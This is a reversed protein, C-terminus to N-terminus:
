SERVKASSGRVVLMPDLVAERPEVGDGELREVVFRVAHEALMAPDQRVTTLGIPMLHSLHSDDYGVVSIEGPVDIGARVFAMLLGLACRDNSALVATPLSDESLLLRGAAVGTDETHRGPVVRAEDALGHRRM